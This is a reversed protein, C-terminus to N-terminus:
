RRWSVELFINELEFVKIEANYGLDELKRMILKHEETLIDVYLNNNSFGYDKIEISYEGKLANEECRKLIDFVIMKIEVSRNKSNKSKDAMRKLKHAQKLKM